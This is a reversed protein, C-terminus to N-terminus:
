IKEKIHDALTEFSPLPGEYILGKLRAEEKELEDPQKLSSVFGKLRSGIEAIDAFDVLVGIDYIDTISRRDNYADMKELILAEPPLSLVEYFTGDLNEYPKIVPDKHYKKYNIDIESFINGLLLEAFIVNGTDRLKVVRAGYRAAAKNLGKKIDEWKDPKTFYTLIQAILGSKTCFTM